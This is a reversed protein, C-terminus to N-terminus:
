MKMAADAKALAKRSNDIWVVFWGGETEDVHALGTRGLRQFFVTLIVWGTANM